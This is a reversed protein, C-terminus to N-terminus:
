KGMWYKLQGIRRMRRCPYKFYKGREVSNIFCLTRVWYPNTSWRINPGQNYLTFVCKYMNEKYLLYRKIFDKISEGKKITPKKVYHRSRPNTCYKNRYLNLEHAAYTFSLLTNQLKKCLEKRARVTHAYLPTHNQCIGCDYWTNKGTVVWWRLDSEGIALGLLDQPTLWENGKIRVVQKAEKVLRKLYEEKRVSKASYKTLVVLSKHLEDDVMKQRLVLAKGQTAFMFTLFMFVMYSVIRYRVM